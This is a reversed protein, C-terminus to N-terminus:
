SYAAILGTKHEESKCNELDDFWAFLEDWNNLNFVMVGYRKRLDIRPDNVLAAMPQDIIIADCYPAYTSIHKVDYFFGSLRRLAAQRDSYSGRKVMDRLAAFIRASLWQYPCDSFLPSNFFELIRAIGAENPMDSPLQALMSQMVLSMVPANFYADNDGKLIRRVFNLYSDIYQQRADRLESKVHDDFKNGSKQWDDFAAVLAEVAQHKSERMLPIDNIYHSVDVWIYDDWKHPNGQLADRLEVQYPSNSQDLFKRFAKLLQTKEIQYAPKFEHGRSTMKIFSMLEDKNRGAYGTWLHTEDEHISSFPALLLQDHSLREIRKAAEIFRLDGGKFAASFFFQDLYIIKKKIQPLFLKEKHNCKECGRLVYEGYVSVNGFCKLNMCKPCNGIIRSVLM